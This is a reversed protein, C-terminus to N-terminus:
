NFMLPLNFGHFGGLLRPASSPWAEVRGPWPAPGRLPVRTPFISPIAGAPRAAARGATAAFGHPHRSRTGADGGDGARAGGGCSASAQQSPLM